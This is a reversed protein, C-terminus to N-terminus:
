HPSFHKAFTDKSQIIPTHAISQYMVKGIAIPSVGGIQKELDLLQLAVFMCSVLPLVRDCAIHKCIEFFFILVVLLIM